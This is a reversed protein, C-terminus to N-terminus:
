GSRFFSCRCAAFVEIDDANITPSHIGAQLAQLDMALRFIAKRATTAFGHGTRDEIFDPRRIESFQAFIWSYKVFTRSRLHQAFKSAASAGCALFNSIWGKDAFPEALRVNEDERGRLCNATFVFFMRWLYETMEDYHQYFEYEQLHLVWPEPAAVPADLGNSEGRLARAILVFPDVSDGGGGGAPPDVGDECALLVLHSLALEREAPINGTGDIVARLREARRHARLSDTYERWLATGLKTEKQDHLWDLVRPPEVDSAFAAIRALCRRANMRPYVDQGGAQGTRIKANLTDFCKGVAATMGARECCEALCLLELNGLSKLEELLRDLVTTDERIALQPSLLPEVVYDRSYQAESLYDSLLGVEVFRDLQGRKLAIWACRTLIRDAIHAPYRRAMCEILWARSPGRLLREEDGGEAALLWEYSWRLADPARTQLWVLALERIRGAYSQYDAHQRIFFELSAHALQIGLRGEDTLHTIQRIASTIVINRSTPDLCEAIALRSWPFDCTALLCLM